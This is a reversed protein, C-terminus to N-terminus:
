KNSINSLEVQKVEDMCKAIWGCLYAFPENNKGKDREAGIDNFIESAVHESEHTITEADMDEACHYQVLYGLDRGIRRQVKQVSGRKDPPILRVDYFTHKLEEESVGIAVWLMRPYINPNFVYIEDM